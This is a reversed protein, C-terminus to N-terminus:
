FIAGPSTAKILLAIILFVPSLVIMAVAAGVYDMLSKVFLGLENATTSSVALTPLGLFQDIYITAMKPYFKIKQIQFDPMVRIKIGMEEAFYIYNHIEEIDRLPLAFIVEDVSEELLIKNFVDLTGIIRVSEYIETGVREKNGVTELCGIIRYDSGPSKMIAEVIDLSRSRSGIILINQINYTRSHKKNLFYYMGGKTITLLVFAFVAFLGMLLRSIDAIHSVYLLIVALLMGYSIAKLIQFVLRGFQKDKFPPYTQSFRLSFQCSIASLLFVLTYNQGSALGRVIDPVLVIKTYYALVFALGLVFFDFVQYMELFFKDKDQIM